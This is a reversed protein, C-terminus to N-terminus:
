RSWRSRTRCLRVYRARYGTSAGIRNTSLRAAPTSSDSRSAAVLVRQPRQLVIRRQLVGCARQPRRYTAAHARRSYSRLCGAWAPDRAPKPRSKGSGPVRLRVVLIHSPRRTGYSDFARCVRGGRYPDRGVVEHCFSEARDVRRLTRSLVSGSTTPDRGGDCLRALIFRSAPTLFQDRATSSRGHLDGRAPSRRPWPDPDLESQAQRRRRQWLPWRPHGLGFKLNSWSDAESMSVRNWDLSLSAVPSEIEALRRGIELEAEFVELGAFAVRSFVDCPLLRLALKNSNHVVTAEAVPLDLASAVEM